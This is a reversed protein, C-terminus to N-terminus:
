VFLADVIAEDVHRPKGKHPFLHCTIGPYENSEVIIGRGGEIPETINECLVDLGVFRLGLTQAAQTFLAINSQHVDDTVDFFEGGRGANVVDQLQLVEGAPLVSQLTYGANKIRQKTTRDVPIPQVKTHPNEAREHNKNEILAGLTQVGDGVVYAAIRQTAAIMKGDLMLIRYEKPYEHFEEVIVSPFMQFSMRLVGELEAQNKINVIVGNGGYTGMNPKVVLPFHLDIDINDKNKQFWARSLRTSRAVPIQADHLLRSTIFKNNSIAGASETNLPTHMSYLHMTKKTKTDTIAIVEDQQYLSVAYGKKFAALAISQNWGTYEDLLQLAQKKSLSDLHVFLASDSGHIM